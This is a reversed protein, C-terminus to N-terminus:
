QRAEKKTQDWLLCGRVIDLDEPTTVHIKNRSTDKSLHLTEGMALFLTPVYAASDMEINKAEAQKYLKFFIGFPATWPLNLDKHVEKRNLSGCTIGDSTYALNYICQMAAFANGYKKCVDLSDRLIDEDVFISTSMGFVLIDDDNCKGELHYIGMKTSEQCSCGSPIVWRLKRINYKKSYDWVHDIYEPICVVEIADIQASSEYIELAYAILPKGFVEVFQKPTKEGLRQGTGGALIVAINM